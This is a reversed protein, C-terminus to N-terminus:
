LLPSLVRALERALLGGFSQRERTALTLLRSNAYFRVREAALRAAVGAGHAVAVVM